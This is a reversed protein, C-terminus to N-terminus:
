RTQHRGNRRFGDAQAPVALFLSVLLIPTLKM